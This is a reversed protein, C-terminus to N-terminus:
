RRLAVAADCSFTQLALCTYCPCCGCKVMEGASSIWPHWCRCLLSSKKRFNIKNKIQQPYQRKRSRALLYILVIIHLPETCALISPQCSASVPPVHQSLMQSVLPEEGFLTLCLGLAINVRTRNGAGDSGQATTRPSGSIIAKCSSFVFRRSILHM